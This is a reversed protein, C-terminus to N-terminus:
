LLLPPPRPSPSQPLPQTHPLSRLTPGDEATPIEPPRRPTGGLGLVLVDFALDAGDEVFLKREQLSGGTVREGLRLEIREKTYDREDHLFVKPREIEGRLFEKSLYPRDHPRHSDASVIVIDGEFGRKRLAFAAADGTGGGGVIVARAM